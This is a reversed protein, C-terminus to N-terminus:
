SEMEEDDYRPVLPRHIRHPGRNRVGTTFSSDVCRLPRLHDRVDVEPLCLRKVLHLALSYYADQQPVKNVFVTTSSLHAM